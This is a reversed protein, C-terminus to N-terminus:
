IWRVLKKLVNQVNRWRKSHFPASVSSQCHSKQEEYRLTNWTKSANQIQNSSWRHCHQSKYTRRVKVHSEAIWTWLIRLPGLSFYEFPFSNVTPKKDKNWQKTAYCGSINWDFSYHLSIKLPRTIQLGLSVLDPNCLFRMKLSYFLRRPTGSKKGKYGIIDRYFIRNYRFKPM